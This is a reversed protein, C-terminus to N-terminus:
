FGQPPETRQFKQRVEENRRWGSQVGCRSFMLSGFKFYSNTRERKFRSRNWPARNRYIKESSPYMEESPDTPHPYASM